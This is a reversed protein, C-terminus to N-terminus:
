GAAASGEQPPLTPMGSRMSQYGAVVLAFSKLNDAGSTEAEIGEDLCRLFHDCVSYVSHSATAFDQGWDAARVHPDEHRTKGSSRVVLRGDAGVTVSGADGEIIATMDALATRDRHSAFSMDLISVGGGKHQVLLTAQDEGIVERGVQQGRGYISIADGMFFRALDTLHVGVELLVLEKQDRLYPQGSYFDFDSRFSVQAWKALGIEGAVIIEKARRMAPQFRFNEHVMLPIRNEEAAAVIAVAEDWNPALPKQVITPLRHETTLRVLALHSYMTTAVDVFDLAVSDLMQRADLFYPINGMLEAAAQARQPDIDCVAVINARDIERWAHLHRQAFFGCGIVAGRYTRM